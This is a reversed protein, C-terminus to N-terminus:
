KQCLMLVQKSGYQSFYEFKSYGYEMLLDRIKAAERSNVPELLIRPKYLGFFKSDQFAVYEAGEIDAKLVDVKELKMDIALQSLTRTEVTCVSEHITTSTTSAVLKSAMTGDSVFSQFGNVNSIAYPYLHVLNSVFDQHIEINKKCCILNLPDAEISIVLNRNLQQFYISSVASYSGLDLVVEGPEIQLIEQYQKLTSIPESTSPFWFQKNKFSPVIHLKPESFDVCNDFSEVSTFYFDFFDIIERVFRINRKALKISSKKSYIVIQDNYFKVKKHHILAYIKLAFKYFSTTNRLFHLIM